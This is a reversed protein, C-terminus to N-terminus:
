LFGGVFFGEFYLMGSVELVIKWAVASAYNELDSKEM